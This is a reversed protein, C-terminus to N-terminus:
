FDESALKQIINVSLWVMASGASDSGMEEEALSMPAVLVPQMMTWALYYNALLKSPPTLILALRHIKRTWGYQVLDKRVSQKECFSLAVRSILLPQRM